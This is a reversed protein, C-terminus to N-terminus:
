EDPKSPDNSKEWEKNFSGIATLWSYIFSDFWNDLFKFESKSDASVFFFVEAFALHVLFYILVFPGMYKIVEKIMRVLYNSTDWIRLYYFFKYWLLMMGIAEIGVILAPEAMNAPVEEYVLSLIATIAVSMIPFLRMLNPILEDKYKDWDHRM